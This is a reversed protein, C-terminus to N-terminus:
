EGNESIVKVNNNNYDLGLSAAVNKINELSALENIKMNLSQNSEELQDKEMKLKEYEVNIKSLTSQSFVIGVILLISLFTCTSHIFKELRSIGRSTRKKM